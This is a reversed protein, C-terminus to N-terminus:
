VRGDREGDRGPVDGEAGLGFAIAATKGTLELNVLNGKM